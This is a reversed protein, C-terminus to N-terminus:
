TLAYRGKHQAIQADYAHAKGPYITISWYRADPVQGSIVTRAGKDTGFADFYYDTAEDPAFVDLYTTTDRIWGTASAPTAASTAASVAFTLGSSLLATIALLSAFHRLSLRQKMSWSYPDVAM